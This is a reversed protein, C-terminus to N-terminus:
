RPSDVTAPPEPGAIAVRESGAPWVRQLAERVDEATVQAIRAPLEAVVGADGALEAFALAAARPGLGDVSLAARGAAAGQARELEARPILEARLRAVEALLAERVLSENDPAVTAGIEFHGALAGPLHRAFHALALGREDLRRALRGSPGDLIAAAVELAPWAAASRAAGPLAIVIEAHTSEVLVREAALAGAAAAPAAPASSSGGRPLGGVLERLRALAPELAFDGVVVAALRDAALAQAHFAALRSADLAALGETTGAPDAAYPHAGYLLRAARSRAVVRADAAAARRELSLARREREVSASDLAPAVLGRVLCELGAELDRARFSGELGFTDRGAFPSVLGERPAAASSARAMLAALLSSAGAAAENEIRAGGVLALRVVVLPARRDPAVLLRAGSPLVVRTVGGPVSTREGGAVHRSARESARTAAGELAREAAAARQEPVVAVAVTRAPVLLRAAASQVARGGVRGERAADRAAAGRRNTARDALVHALGSMGDRARADTAALLARARDLEATGPAARGLRYVEALMAELAAPARTADARAWLLLTAPGRLIDLVAGAGEELGVRLGARDLAGPIRADGGRALLAAAVELAALEETSADDVAFGIAIFAEAVRDGRVTVRADGHAASAAVARTEHVAPLTGRASRGFVRAAAEIAEEAEIAGAIALTMHAPVWTAAHFRRLGDTRLRALDEITGIPARAWPTGARMTAFVEELVLRDAAARSRRIEAVMAGVARDLTDPSWRPSLATEALAALVERFATAPVLAAVHTRDRTTWAELTGGHASVLRELHSGTLLVHDLARASGPAGAPDDASGVAVVLELAVVPAAPAELAVVRLGSPVTRTVEEGLAAEPAESRFISRIASCGVPGALAGIALITCTRASV